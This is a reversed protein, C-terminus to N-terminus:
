ELMFSVAGVKKKGKGELGLFNADRSKTVFRSDNMTLSPQFWEEQLVNRERKAKGERGRGGEQRANDRWGGV